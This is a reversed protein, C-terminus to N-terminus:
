GSPSNSRDAYGRKRKAIRYKRLGFFPEHDSPSCSPFHEGDSVRGNGESVIAQAREQSERPGAEPARRGNPM